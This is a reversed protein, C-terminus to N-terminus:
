ETASHTEPHQRCIARQLTDATHCGSHLVYYEGSYYHWADRAYTVCNNVICGHGYGNNRGRYIRPNEVLTTVIFVQRSGILYEQQMDLDWQVGDIQAPRYM